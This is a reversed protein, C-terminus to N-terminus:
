NNSADLGFPGWLHDCRDLIETTQYPWRYELVFVHQLTPSSKPWPSHRMPWYQPNRFYVAFLPSSPPATRQQSTRLRFQSHLRFDAVSPLQVDLGLSVKALERTTARSDM